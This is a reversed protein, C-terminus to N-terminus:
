SGLIIHLGGNRAVDQASVSIGPHHGVAVNYIEPSPSPVKKVVFLFTLSRSLGGCGSLPESFHGPALLAGTGIVQGSGDRVTVQTGARIDGYAGSGSRDLPDHSGDPADTLTVSGPIDYLLAAGCFGCYVGDDSLFDAGCSACTPM